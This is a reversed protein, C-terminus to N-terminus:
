RLEHELAELEQQMRLDTAEIGRTPLLCNKALYSEVESLFADTVSGPPLLQSAVGLIDPLTSIVNKQGTPDTRFVCDHLLYEGGWTKMVTVLRRDDVRVQAIVDEVDLRCFMRDDKSQWFGEKLAMQLASDFAWALDTEQSLRKDLNLAKLVRSAEQLAAAAKIYMKGLIPPSAPSLSFDEPQVHLCNASVGAGRESMHQELGVEEFDELASGFRLTHIGTLTALANRTDYLNKSWFVPFWRGSMDRRLYQHLDKYSWAIVDPENDWPGSPWGLNSRDCRGIMTGNTGEFLAIPLNLLENGLNHGAVKPAPSKFRPLRM